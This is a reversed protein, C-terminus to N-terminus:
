GLNDQWPKAGAAPQPRALMSATADDEEVTRQQPKWLSERFVAALREVSYPKLLAVYGREVIADIEDDWGTMLVVPLHPIRQQALRALTLGDKGPLVVDSFLLDVRRGGDIISLADVCTSATLVSYGFAAEILYATAELVDPNDEVVLIVADRSASAASQM